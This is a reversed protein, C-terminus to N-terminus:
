EFEVEVREQTEAKVYKILAPDKLLKRAEEPTAAKELADMKDAAAADKVLSGVDMRLLGVVERDSSVYQANTRTISGKVKVHLEMLMGDLFQAMMMRGMADGAPDEEDSSEDGSSPPTMPPVLITLKPTPGQTFEFAVREEEDEEEKEVTVTLGGDAMGMDGPPFDEMGADGGMEMGGFSSEAMPSVSIKTIDSFAFVTRVGKWGDKPPLQEVTQVTVGEGMRQAEQAATARAEAIQEQPDPTQQDGMPFDPIKSYVTQEVTGSGDKEVTVITKSKICGSLLMLGALSVLGFTVKRTM